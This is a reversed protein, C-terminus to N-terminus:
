PKTEKRHAEAKELAREVSSAGSERWATLGTGRWAYREMVEEAFPRLLRASKGRRLGRLAKQEAQRVRERTVGWDAAIRDLTERGGLGGLGYRRRVAERQREELTGLAQELALSLQHIYVAEEIREREEEARPDPTLDGLTAADTEESVPKDLRAATLLPDRKSTRIGCAARFHRRLHYDLYGVFAKGAAPDFGEVADCLALFGAQFLDDFEVGAGSCLGANQRWYRAAHQRVFAQVRDWLEGMGARGERAAVAFAENTM